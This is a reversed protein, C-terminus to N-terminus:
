DRRRRKRALALGTLGSAFLVLSVPEPVFEVSGGAVPNGSTDGLFVSDTGKIFYAKSQVDDAASTLDVEYTHGSLLTDGGSFLLPTWQNTGNFQQDDTQTVGDLGDAISHAAVFQANTMVVQDLQVGGEYLTLVLDAGTNPGDKMDFKGGALVLDAVPTINWTSTHNVDIQTQANSQGTYLFVPDAQGRTVGLALTLVGTGALLGIRMINTVGNM